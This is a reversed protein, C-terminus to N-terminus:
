LRESVVNDLVCGRELAGSLVGTTEDGAGLLIERMVLHCHRKRTMIVRFALRRKRYDINTATPVM